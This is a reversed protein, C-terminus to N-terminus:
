KVLVLDSAREGNRIVVVFGGVYVLRLKDKTEVHYSDFRHSTQEIGSGLLILLGTVHQFAIVKGNVRTFGKAELDKIM